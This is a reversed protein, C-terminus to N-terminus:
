RTPTGVFTKYEYNGDTVVTTTVAFGNETVVINDIYGERGGTIESVPTATWRIGDASTLLVQEKTVQESSLTSYASVGM